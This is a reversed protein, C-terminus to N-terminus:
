DTDDDYEDSSDQHDDDSEYKKVETDSVMDRAVDYERVRIFQKACIMERLRKANMSPLLKNLHVHKNQEFFRPSKCRILGLVMVTHGWNLMSNVCSGWSFTDTLLGSKELAIM